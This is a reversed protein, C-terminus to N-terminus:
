LGSMRIDAKLTEVANMGAENFELKSIGGDISISLDKAVPRLESIAMEYTPENVRVSIPTEIIERSIFAWPIWQAVEITGSYAPLAIFFSVLILNQCRTM